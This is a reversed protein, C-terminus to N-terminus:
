NGKKLLGAVFWLVTVGSIVLLGMKLTESMDSSSSYKAKLLAPDKLLEQELDVQRKTVYIWGGIAAIVAVLVLQVYGMTAPAETLGPDALLEKVKNWAPIVDNEFFGRNKDRQEAVRQKDPGEPLSSIKEDVQKQIEALNNMLAVGQQYDAKVQAPLNSVKNWMSDAWDTIDSVSIM